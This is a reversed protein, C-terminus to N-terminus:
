RVRSRAVERKPGADVQVPTAPGTYAQIGRRRFAHLGDSGAILHRGDPTVALPGPFFGRRLPKCGDSRRLGVCGWGGPLQRLAGRKHREFALIGGPAGRGEVSVYLNRGFPSLALFLPEAHQLAQVTTCGAIRAEAVCGSRGPLQSLAGSPVDRRIVAIVNGRAPLAYLVGGGRSIALDFGGDFRYPGCGFRGNRAVCGAKGPPQVLAGTAENRRLV